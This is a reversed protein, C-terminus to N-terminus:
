LNRQARQMAGMLTREIQGRDRQFSGADNAYVTMNITIGGLAHNPIVTGNQRPVIVEAGREGVLYPAGANVPGGNAAAGVIITGPFYGAPNIGQGGGALGGLATIGAQLGQEILPALYRRALVRQIDFLISTAFESFSFRGHEVMRSMTDVCHEGFGDVGSRLQDWVTGSTQRLKDLQGQLGSLSRIGAVMNRTDDDAPIRTQGSRLNLAHQREADAEAQEADALANFAEARRLTVDRLREAEERQERLAQIKAIEKDNFGMRRAEIELLEAESATVQVVADQMRQMFAERRREAQTRTRDAEDEAKVRNATEVDIEAFRGKVREDERQTQRGEEAQMVRQQADFQPGIETLLSSRDRSTKARAEELKIVAALETQETRM